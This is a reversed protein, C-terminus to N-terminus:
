LGHVGGGSLRMGVVITVLSREHWREYGAESPLVPVFELRNPGREVRQGSRRRARREDSSAAVTVFLGLDLMEAAVAIGRLQKATMAVLLVRCRIRSDDDQTVVGGAVISRGLPNYLLNWLDRMSTRHTALWSAWDARSCLRIGCDELIQVLEPRSFRTFGWLSVDGASSMSHAPPRATLMGLSSEEFPALRALVGGEPVVDRVSRSAAAYVRCVVKHERWHARQCDSSCYRALRCMGCLRLSVDERGCGHCRSYFAFPLLNYAGGEHSQTM